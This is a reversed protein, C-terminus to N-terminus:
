VSQIQFPNLNPIFCNKLRFFTVTFIIYTGFYIKPAKGNFFQLNQMVNIEITVLQLLHFFLRHQQQKRRM